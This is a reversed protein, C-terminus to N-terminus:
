PAQSELTSGITNLQDSIQTGLFILAVIALLAILALILAYEALGQGDDDRRIFQILTVLATRFAVPDEGGKGFGEAPTRESTLPARVGPVLVRHSPRNPTDITGEADM